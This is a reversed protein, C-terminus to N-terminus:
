AALVEVEHRVHAPKVSAVIAAVRKADVGAPDPVRLRVRVWPHESGPMATGPQLSMAVEGSDSVEPEIGVYLAVLEAIGRRTGRLSYLKVAQVIVDRQRRLPWNEDLVVGVWSALWAAFDAPALKPDLYAALCDLTLHVPALVTDLAATFRQALDDGQLLAPLMQGLPFPSALGVVLARHSTGVGPDADSEATAGVAIAGGTHIPRLPNSV